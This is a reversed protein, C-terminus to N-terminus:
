VKEGGEEVESASKSSIGTERSIGTAASDLAAIKGGGFFDPLKSEESRDPMSNANGAKSVAYSSSSASTSSLLSSPFNPQINMKKVARRLEEGSEDLAMLFRALEKCLDWDGVEKARQLLM